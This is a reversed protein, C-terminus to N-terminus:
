NGGTASDIAKKLTKVAPADPLKEYAAGIAKKAEVIRGLQYYVYGLLFQLEGSDSTHLWEQIDAIRSEVKDRDGVMGVLDIKFRAYEPFIELTRSLFLASSMYGGAAFLAHSKGAYALPDNSKYLSALAYTDAAKYYKGEKLYQEAARMHENFQDKSYSAFTKHEGRISKARVSLAVGSLEERGKVSTIDKELEVELAKIEEETLSSLNKLRLKELATKEKKIEEQSEDEGLNEGEINSVQKSGLADPISYKAQVSEIEKKMREYVDLGLSEDEKQEAEKAQKIILNVLKDKDTSPRKDRLPEPKKEQERIKTLTPSQLTVTDQELKSFPRQSEDRVILSQKLPPAKHELQQMDQKLREMQALNQEDVIRKAEAFTLTGDLILKELQRPKFRM